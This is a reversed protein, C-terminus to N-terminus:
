ELLYVFLKEFFYGKSELCEFKYSYKKLLSDVDGTLSSFVLLVKGDKNLFKKAQSLFRDVIKIGGSTSIDKDYRDPPLYPPNFIILDFKGDVKSFLNSVKANVGKGKLLRVADDSIDVALVDPTKELATLAQIGSGTGMDLVRGKAFKRVYKQLLFSDEQPEYIM